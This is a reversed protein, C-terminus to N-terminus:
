PINVVTAPPDSCIATPADITPADPDAIMAYFAMKGVGWKLYFSSFFSQHASDVLGEGIKKYYVITDKLPYIQMFDTASSGIYLTDNAAANVKFDLKALVDFSNYLVGMNMVDREQLQWQTSYDKYWRKSNDPAEFQLDTTYQTPVKLEFYGNADTTTVDLVENRGFISGGPVYYRVQLKYGAIPTSCDNMLHGALMYTSKYKNCAPLLSFAYVLLTIILLRQKM